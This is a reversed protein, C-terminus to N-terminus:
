RTTLRITKKEGGFLQIFQTFVCDGLRQLREIHLPTERQIREPDITGGLACIEKKNEVVRLWRYIMPEDVELHFQLGYVNPGYRFAQNACLSSFALHLTSRPIDFTDGHWQFIKETKGFV